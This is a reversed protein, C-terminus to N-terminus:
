VSAGKSYPIGLSYSLESFNGDCGTLWFLLSVFVAVNVNLILSNEVTSFIGVFKRVPGLVPLDHVINVSDSKPSM